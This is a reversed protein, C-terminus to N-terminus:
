APGPRAAEFAAVVERLRPMGGKIGVDYGESYCRCRSEDPLDLDPVDAQRSEVPVPRELAEVCRSVLDAGAHHGADYCECPGHHDGCAVSPRDQPQEEYCM